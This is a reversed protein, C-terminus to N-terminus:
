LLRFCGLSATGRDRPDPADHKRLLLDLTTTNQPKRPARQVADFDRRMSGLRGAKLQSAQQNALRLSTVVLLRCM